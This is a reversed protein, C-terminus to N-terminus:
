EVIRCWELIPAKSSIRLQVFRHQFIDIYLGIAM